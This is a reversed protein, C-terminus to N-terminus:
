LKLFHCTHQFSLESFVWDWYIGYRPMDHLMSAFTDQNPLRAQTSRNIPINLNRSQGPLMRVSGRAVAKKLHDSQVLGHVNGERHRNFAWVVQSYTWLIQM